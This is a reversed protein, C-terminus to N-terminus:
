GPSVLTVRRRLVSPSIPLIRSTPPAVEILPIEHTSSPPTDPTDDNSSDTYIFASTYHTTPATPPITSTIPSITPTEAPILSTDDHVVPPDTTPTTAPVTTPIVKIFSKSKEKERSPSARSQSSLSGGLDIRVHSSRTEFNMFWNKGGEFVFGEIFCSFTKFSKKTLTRVM